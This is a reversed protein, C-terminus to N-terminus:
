TGAPLNIQVHEGYGTLTVTFTSDSTSSTFPGTLTLQRLQHNGPDIAAVLQVPKSPNADPLVPIASGPVTSSVEDVLEGAIRETGTVRAGTGATLLSSLGRQPDLLQSPNGIGFTAPDIKSFSTSFPLEAVVESGIAVVKVDAAFGKVTVNLTGEIRDPRAMDGEGGTITTSGSSANTSKLTFHASPADDLATKAQNLLTQPNAATGGSTGCAAALAALGAALALLGAPAARRPGAPAADQRRVSGEAPIM